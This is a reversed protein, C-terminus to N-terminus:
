SPSRGGWLVFTPPLLVLVSALFRLTLLFLTSDPALQQATLYLSRVANLGILSLAGTAGILLEIRGFLAVPNHHREGWRGFFAYGAALGGMSAALVTTIAYVTHGFVM